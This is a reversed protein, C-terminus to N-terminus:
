LPPMAVQLENERSFVKHNELSWGEPMPIENQLVKQWEEPTVEALFLPYPIEESPPFYFSLVDGTAPTAPNVELLHIEPTTKSKFWIVKEFSEELAFHEQILKKVVSEIDHNQSM